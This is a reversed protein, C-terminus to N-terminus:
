DSCELGGRAKVGNGVFSMAEERSGCLIWYTDLRTIKLIEREHDSLNCFAMRGKRHTVVKWLKLFLGLSTSGFYDTKHFDMVINRITPDNVVDLASSTHTDTYLIESLNEVLTIIVTEGEREVDFLVPAPMPIRRVELALKFDAVIRGAQGNRGCM